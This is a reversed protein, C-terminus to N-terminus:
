DNKFDTKGEGFRCEGVTDLRFPAFTTQSPDFQYCTDDVTGPTDPCIWVVCNPAQVFEVRVWKSKPGHRVFVVQGRRVAEGYVAQWLKIDRPNEKLRDCGFGSNGSM